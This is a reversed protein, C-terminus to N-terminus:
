KHVRRWEDWIEVVGKRKAWDRGLDAATATLTAREDHEAMPERGHHKQAQLHAASMIKGFYENMDAWGLDRLYAQVEASGAEERPAPTSISLLSLQKQASALRHKLDALEIDKDEASNSMVRIQSQLEKEREETDARMADIKRKVDPYQTAELISIKERLIVVLYGFLTLLGVGSLIVVLDRLIGLEPYLQDRIM